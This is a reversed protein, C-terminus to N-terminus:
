THMAMLDLGNQLTPANFYSSTKTTTHINERMGKVGIRTVDVCM